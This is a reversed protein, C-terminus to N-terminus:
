ESAHRRTTHFAQEEPGPTGPPGSGPADSSHLGRVLDAWQPASRLEQSLERLLDAMAEAAVRSGDGAGPWGQGQGDRGRAIGQGRAMGAGPWVFAGWPRQPGGGSAKSLGAEREDPRTLCLEPDRLQEQTAALSATYYLITYYLITYYLITYYLITYYLITYYLITSYQVTSYQVTSYQVTSYLITNYQITNYLLTYYLITNYQITNYIINM